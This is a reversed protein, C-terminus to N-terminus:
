KLNPFLAEIAEARLDAKGGKPLEARLQQFADSPQLAAKHEKTYVFDRAPQAKYMDYWFQMRRCWEVSLATAVAEGYLKASFSAQSSLRYKRCWASPDGKAAQGAVCYYKKGQQAQSWAWDRVETVFDDGVPVGEVEWERRKKELGQWIGDLVADQDLGSSQAVEPLLPGATQSGQSGQGQEPGYFEALWPHEAVQDSPLVKSAKAEDTAKRRTKKPLAPLSDLFQGLTIPELDSVMVGPADFSLGQFVLVGEGGVCPLCCGVVYEDDRAEFTYNNWNSWFDVKEQLSAEALCPVVPFKLTLPKFHPEHPSQTAYVFYYAVSGDELSTTIAVGREQVLNRNWCFRKLWDPLGPEVLPAAYIPCKALAELVDSPPAPPGKALEKRRDAVAPWAFDPTALLQRMSTYDVETFRVLPVKNLMGEALLEANLRAKGLQKATQLFQTEEQVEV